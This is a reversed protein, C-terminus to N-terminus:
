KHKRLYEIAKILLEEDDLFNGIGTNCNNCLAGRIKGSKHCHDVAFAKNNEETTIGCIDCRGSQLSVLRDYHLRKRISNGNHCSKCTSSFGDHKYRNNYFEEYPLFERCTDCRKLKDDSSTEPKTETGQSGLNLSQQEM